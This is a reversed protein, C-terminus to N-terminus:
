YYRGSKGKALNFGAVILLVAVVLLIIGGLKGILSIIGIILLVSGIFKKGNSLGLIGCGIFVFPLILGFIWGLHINFFKLLLLGGILVAAIGLLSKRNM